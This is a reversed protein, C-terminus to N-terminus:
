PPQMSNIIRILDEPTRPAKVGVQYYLGGSWFYAYPSPGFRRQMEPDGFPARDFVVVWRDGIQRLKDPSAQRLQELPPQAGPAIEVTLEADRFDKAGHDSYTIIAVFPCCKMYVATLVMQDPLWTPVILSANHANVAQTLEALSVERAQSMFAEYLPPVSFKTDEYHAMFFPFAFAIIISVTVVLSGVLPKRDLM